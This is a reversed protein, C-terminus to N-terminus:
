LYSPRWTAALVRSLFERLERTLSGDPDLRPNMITVDLGVAHGSKLAAGLIVELEEWSLGDPVRYDVAPMLRDDLVDADLHIWFPRAPNAIARRATGTAGLSRVADLDFATISSALPRSGDSAAVAHDRRGVVVVDGDHVLPGPGDIETLLRPGRGTAFGLEMSAAEGTPEAEPQYFDAHGDLFLLGVRGRRRAGALCGLLISCDGGLVVPFREQRLVDAVADALAVSYAAIGEGNLVGHDRDIDPSWAPPSVPETVSADLASALGADLLAQPLEEVGAAHLGLRSPAPIITYSMLDM